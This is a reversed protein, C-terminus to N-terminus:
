VETSFNHRNQCRWLPPLGTSRGYQGVLVPIIIAMFIVAYEFTRKAVAPIEM